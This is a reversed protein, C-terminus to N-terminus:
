RDGLIQDRSRMYEIETINGKQRDEELDALERLDDPSLKMIEEPTPADPREDLPIPEEAIIQRTRARGDGLGGTRLSQRFIPDRWDIEVGQRGAYRYYGNTVMRFPMVEEGPRPEPLGEKKNRNEDTKWDIRSFILYLRERKMYAVFSTLYKRNFVGHQMQKRLAMVVVEQNPDAESLARTLGGAIAEIIEPAVAPKRERIASKKDRQFDVEVAALIHTMRETSITAPHNFEREVVDGFYPKKARLKIELGYTDLVPQYISRSACGVGSLLLTALGLAISRSLAKGRPASRSEGIPGRQLFDIVMQYLLLKDGERSERGSILVRESM